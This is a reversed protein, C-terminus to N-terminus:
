KKKKANKIDEFIIEVSPIELERSSKEPAYLSSFIKNIINFYAAQEDATDASSAILYATSLMENKIGDSGGFYLNYFRDFENQYNVRVICEQSSSMVSDLMRPCFSSYPCEATCKYQDSIVELVARRDTMSIIYPM